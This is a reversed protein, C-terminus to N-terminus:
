CTPEKYFQRVREVILEDVYNALSIKIRNLSDLNHVTSTHHIRIGYNINKIAIIQLGPFIMSMKEIANLILISWYIPIKKFEEENFNAHKRSNVINHMLTYSYAYKIKDENSKKKDILYLEAIDLIM